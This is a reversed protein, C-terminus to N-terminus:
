TEAVIAIEKRWLRGLLNGYRDCFIGDSEVPSEADAAAFQRSTQVEPV